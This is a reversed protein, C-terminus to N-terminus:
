RFLLLLVEKDSSLLFFFSCLHLKLAAKSQIIHFLLLLKQALIFVLQPFTEFWSPLCYFMLLTDTVARRLLKGRQMKRKSLNHHSSTTIRECARSPADNSPSVLELHASQKPMQLNVLARITTCFAGKAAPLCCIQLVATNIDQSRQFSGNPPPVDLFLGYKVKIPYM